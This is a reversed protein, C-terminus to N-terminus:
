KMGWKTFNNEFNVKVLGSATGLWLNKGDFHLARIESNRIDIQSLDINKIEKTTINILSLGRGIEIKEIPNFEYLGALIYNGIKTFCYIGNGHLGDIKSIRRWSFKRDYIYIGGVNYKPKDKTVFEETAFWIMNRLPLIDSVSVLDGEGLFARGRNNFYTWDNFKNAQDLILKHVGFEAGFYIVSDGDAAISNINNTKANNDITRNFHRYSNSNVYYLTINRFRGIWLLNRKRDFYLARIWNGFEGGESFKKVSWRNTKRDYIYLGDNSGAWIYSSSSEVCHFLDTDLNGSKTSFNKLTHNSLSYQYIGKGYTAILIYNHDQKIDTVFANEILLKSDIRALLLNPIILFFIWYKFVKM